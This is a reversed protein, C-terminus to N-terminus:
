FGIGGPARRGDRHFRGRVHMVRHPRVVPARVACAVRRWVSEVCGLLVFVRFGPVSVLVVFDLWQCSRRGM